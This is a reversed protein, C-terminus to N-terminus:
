RPYDRLELTLQNPSKCCTWLRKMTAYLYTNQQVVLYLSIHM